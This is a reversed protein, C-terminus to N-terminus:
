GAFPELGRMLELAAPRQAPDPELCREVLRALSAPVRRHSRVPEARRELQEYTEPDEEGEVERNFPMEGTLAEFLVAGIGWVDTAPGLLGGGRVQEPAMYQLTGGGRRARGPPRAISLDLIKAFGRESVINSPKLDLHLIGHRHLYHVASCLHIGLCAVERLPLRRPATDILYSLTEGTLTELIVAPRPERIVDYARVIHPHALRRLLTGERLLRRVARGNGERPIPVKAVCRCAREESFVDYVDYHNSRHLHSIVRYGPAAESGAPLPPPGEARLSM